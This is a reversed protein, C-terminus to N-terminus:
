GAALLVTGAIALVVGVWQGRGLRERLILVALGVTIVPNLSALVSVVALLGQTSAVAFATTGAVLLLGPVTAALATRRPMRVAPRRLAIVATTCVVLAARSWLVAWSAGHGAAHSSLTIFGGGAVASVSALLVGRQRTGLSAEDTQAAGLGLGPGSGLGEIDPEEAHTRAALLVGILAIPIGAAQLATPREGSVLATIVPVLAGASGIPAVVSLPAARAALYFSGLAAANFIGAALALLLGARDDEGPHHLAAIVAAVLLGTSQGILLVGAVPARRGLLPGLYSALGYALATGLALLVATM